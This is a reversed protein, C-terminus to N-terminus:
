RFFANKRTKLLFKEEVEFNPNTKNLIIGMKM